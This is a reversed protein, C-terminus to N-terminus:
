DIIPIDRLSEPLAERIEKDTLHELPVSFTGQRYVLVRKVGDQGIGRYDRHTNRWVADLAGDRTLKIPNDKM